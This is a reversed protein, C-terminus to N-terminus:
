QSIWYQEPNTPGPNPYLWSGPHPSPVNHFNNKVIGYGPAGLSIGIAYFEEAAIDLIQNMLDAQVAADGSAKIQDYLEM